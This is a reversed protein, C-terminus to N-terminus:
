YVIKDFNALKVKYVRVGSWASKRRASALLRCFLHPITNGVGRNVNGVRVLAQIGVQAMKSRPNGGFAPFNKKNSVRTTTRTTLYPLTPLTTIKLM